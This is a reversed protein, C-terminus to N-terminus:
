PKLQATAEIDISVDKDVRLVFTSPDKLGWQVYPVTFHINLTITGSAPHVSVNLQLPHDQGHLNFIGDVTLAQERNPDFKGNLQVPRFTITQYRSSELIKNHMVEDRMSNGSEGSTADVVVSGTVAGTEPDLHVLGSKLKFTGRVTHLVDGLTWHIVTTAPDLKIDMGRPQQAGATSAGALLLLLCRSACTRLFRACVGAARYKLRV